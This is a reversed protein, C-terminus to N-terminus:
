RRPTGNPAIDHVHETEVIVIWGAVRARALQTARLDAPTGQFALLQFHHPRLVERIGRLLLSFYNAEIFPSLVGISQYALM